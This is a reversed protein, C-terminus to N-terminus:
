MCISLASILVNPKRCLCSCVCGFHRQPMKQWQEGQKCSWLWEPRLQCLGKHLWGWLQVKIISHNKLLNNCPLASQLWWNWCSHKRIVASTRLLHVDGHFFIGGQCLTLLIEREVASMLLNCHLSGVPSVQDTKCVRKYAEGGLWLEMGVRRRFLAKASSKTMLVLTEVSFLSLTLGPLLFGWLPTM